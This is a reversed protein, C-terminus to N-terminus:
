ILPLTKKLGLYLRRNKFAKMTKFRSDRPNYVLVGKPDM